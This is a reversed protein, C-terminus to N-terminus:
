SGRLLLSHMKQLGSQLDPRGGVRLKNQRLAKTDRFHISWHLAHPLAVAESATCSVRRRFVPELSSRNVPICSPQTDDAKVDIAPHKNGAECILSTCYSHSQNERHATALVANTPEAHISQRMSLCPPWMMTFCVQRYSLHSSESTSGM